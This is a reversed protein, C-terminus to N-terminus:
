PYTQTISDLRYVHGTTLNTLAVDTYEVRQLQQEVCVQITVVGLTLSGSVRGKDDPLLAVTSSPFQRDGISTGGGCTYVADQTAALQYDVSGFRKQGGESFNVVLSGTGTMGAAVIEEMYVFKGTTKAGPEAGGVAVPGTVSVGVLLALLSAAFVARRFIPRM